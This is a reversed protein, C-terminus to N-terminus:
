VHHHHDDGLAPGDIFTDAPFASRTAIPMFTSTV